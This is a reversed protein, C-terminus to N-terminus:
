KVEFNAVFQLQDDIFVRVEYMGADFGHPPTWAITANGSDPRDWPFSEFYVSGGDRFWNHRLRVGAPVNQFDFFVYVAPTGVGFQLSPNVPLGSADVGAAIARM